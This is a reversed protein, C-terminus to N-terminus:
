AGRAALEAVFERVRGQHEPCLYTAASALVAGATIGQAPDLAGALLEGATAEIGLGGAAVTVLADEPTGADLAECTALGVGVALAEDIVVGGGSAVTAAVAALYAATLDAAVREPCILGVGTLLVEQLIVDDGADGPPAEVAGVAAAVDVLVSGSGACLAVIVEAVTAPPLESFRTGDLARDASGAYQIAAATRPDTTTAPTGSGGCAAVLVVLAAVRRM